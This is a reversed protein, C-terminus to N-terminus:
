VGKLRELDEALDQAKYRIPIRLDRNLDSFEWQSLGGLECARELSVKGREYLFLALLRRVEQGANAGSLGLEEAIAPPLDLEIRLTNM